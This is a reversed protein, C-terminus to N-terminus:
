QWDIDPMGPIVPSPILPIDLPSVGVSWAVAGQQGCREGLEVAACVAHVPGECALAGNSETM